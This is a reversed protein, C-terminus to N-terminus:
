SKKQGVILFREQIMSIYGDKDLKKQMNKFFNFNDDISLKSIDKTWIKLFAFFTAMDYFEVDVSFKHKEVLKFNERIQTKFSEMGRDFDPISLGRDEFDENLVDSVVQILFYGESKLVRDVEFFDCVGSISHVIDFTNDEYPILNNKLSEKVTIGLHELRERIIEYHSTYNETMGILKFPHNLNYIFEGRGGNIDLLRDDSKLYKSLIHSYGWPLVGCNWRGDIYSLNFTDRIKEEEEVLERKLLEEGTLNIM